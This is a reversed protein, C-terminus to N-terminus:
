WQDWYQKFAFYIEEAMSKSKKKTFCKQTMFMELADPSYQNPCGTFALRFLPDSMSSSFGTYEAPFATADDERQGIEFKNQNLNCIRELFERGRGVNGDYKARTNDSYIHKQIIERRGKELEELSYEISSQASRSKELPRSCTNYADDSPVKDSM